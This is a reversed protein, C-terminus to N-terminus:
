QPQYLLASSLDAGSKSLFDVGGAILVRGDDLLTATHEMRRQGMSGAPTFSGTGPDYLEASSLVDWNAGNVESHYGGAILVRGDDLLTATHQQRGSDMSGAPSFTGARPDYVEAPAYTRGNPARGGAILVRGDQLLTATHLMRGRRVSGTESFRGTAPDYLEVETRSDYGEGGGGVVLVRGDQLLTATHRDRFYRMSGTPSFTGTVPDYLEASRLINASTAATRYSALVISQSGLPNEGPNGGTVLVRGDALLTATHSSRPTGMSGTPSFTGTAPDYVEASAWVGAQEADTCNYGGTVLVRGDGLRTMTKGARTATLSGTPTFTGSAPDYLEAAPGCSQSILVRGDALKVAADMGSGGPGTNLTTTVSGTWTFGPSLEPAPTPPPTPPPPGVSTATSPTWPPPVIAPGGLPQWVPGQTWWPDEDGVLIGPTLQAADAGDADM